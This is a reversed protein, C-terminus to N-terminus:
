HFREVKLSESCGLDAVIVVALIVRHLRMAHSHSMIKDGIVAEGLM